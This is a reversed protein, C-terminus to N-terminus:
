GKKFHNDKKEPLLSTMLDIHLMYGKRVEGWDYLVAIWYGTGRRYDDLTTM